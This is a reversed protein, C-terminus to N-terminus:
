VDSALQDAAVAAPAPKRLAAEIGSVPPPRKGAGLAVAIAIVIAASLARLAAARPSDNRTRAATTPRTPPAPAVGLEALPESPENTAAQQAANGVDDRSSRSIAFCGSRAIFAAALGTLGIRIRQASSGAQYPMAEAFTHGLEVIHLFM